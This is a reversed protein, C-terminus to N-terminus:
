GAPCRAIEAALGRLLDAHHGPGPDLALGEPDLTGLWAGTEGAMARALAPDHGAEAFVCAPGTGIQGRIQARIQALHAAGPSAADGGSLAGAISLGFASAFYGYADHQVFLAKGQAPALTARLEVELATLAAETTAANAAYRPANEPDVEALRDAMEAVWVRANAPDLWAHPDITGHDHDHGADHAGEAGGTELLRTGPVALLEVARDAAGAGELARALGPTLEPGIWFVLDAGALARVQSPRLQFDHPDAGGSLILAPEGLGAMVQAALAHVAPIDAVVAPPEARAPLAAILAAILIPLRM